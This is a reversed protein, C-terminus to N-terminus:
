KEKAIIANATALVLAQDRPDTLEGVVEQIIRAIEEDTNAARIGDALLRANEAPTHPEPKFMRRSIERKVEIYDMRGNEENM